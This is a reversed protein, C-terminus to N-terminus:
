WSNGRGGPSSVVLLRPVVVLSGLLLHFAGIVFLVSGSSHLDLYSVPGIDPVRRGAGRPALPVWARILYRVNEFVLDCSPSLLVLLRPVPAVPLEDLRPWGM